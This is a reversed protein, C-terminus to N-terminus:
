GIRFADRMGANDALLYYGWHSTSRFRQGSSFLRFFELVAELLSAAHFGLPMRTGTPCALARRRPDFAGLQLPSQLGSKTHLGSFVPTHSHWALMWIGFPDASGTRAVFIAFFRFFRFRMAPQVLKMGFLGIGMAIGLAFTAAVPFFM